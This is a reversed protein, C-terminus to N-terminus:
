LAQSVLLWMPLPVILYSLAVLRGDRATLGLALLAIALAPLAAAFPVLELPPMTLALLSCLAACFRTGTGGVLQPLRNGTHRDIFETVPRVRAIGRRYRERDISLGALRRPVWPHTRGFLRQAAILLILLAMLTPVGPVAGTPLLVVLAPVLILPGFGRSELSEVLEKVSIDHDTVELLQALTDTLTHHDTM